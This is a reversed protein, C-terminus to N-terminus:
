VSLVAELGARFDAVLSQRDPDDAPQEDWPPLDIGDSIAREYGVRAARQAMEDLWASTVAGLVVAGTHAVESQVACRRDGGAESIEWDALKIEATFVVSTYTEAASKM